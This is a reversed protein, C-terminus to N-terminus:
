ELVALDYGLAPLLISGPQVLPNGRSALVSLDAGSLRLVRNEAAPEHRPDIVSLYFDGAGDANWDRHTSALDVWLGGVPLLETEALVEGNTGDLVYVPLSERCGTRVVVLDQVGDGSTDSIWCLEVSIFAGRWQWLLSGDSAAQSVARRGERMDAFTPGPFGDGDLDPGLARATGSWTLLVRRPDTADLIRTEFSGSGEGPVYWYSLVDPIGDGDFDAEAAAADYLTPAEDSTGTDFEVLVSSEAGSVLQVRSRLYGETAVVILDAHGDGDVDPLMAASSAFNDHPLLTLALSLM